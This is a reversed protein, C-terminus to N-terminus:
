FNYPAAKTDTLKFSTELVDQSNTGVFLKFDGAEYGWSYDLRCFALDQPKISLHVTKTEGKKLFIKQFGKLEKVPRTVSGVLDRVYLQVVEHGDYNGTNTVDVSVNLTQGDALTNKDIKLHSYKFTTYSLGYGFPFLPANTGDQYRTTFHDEPNYPRGTNKHNYFLPVQGAYRPFTTTLKGSPNYDGFLVDAIANGAESGLHWVDLIAPINEAEWTIVLPRCNHLLLVTPKNLKLVEKILKRQIAPIEINLRSAAEGGMDQREGMALLVVDSKKAAAIAEAFGQEDNKEFDCGKAMNITAKLHKNQLGKYITTVTEKRGATYWSGLQDLQDDALPGILAVSQVEKKLPLIHQDNKLLVISKDAVSRATKFHEPNQLVKKARKKSCYRYPDQFLGLRYKMNLIRRCADDIESEPVKGEKVSKLLSNKYIDSQMDMDVGANMAVEGAEKKDKVNGHKTMEYISTYDTVVFGKFGWEKKLVDSLLFKNGTCPVGNLDNFATMITAVGADVAAKFPPLYTDRLAREPVETTNYDRGAQVAGYAAFHKVCAAVTGVDSLEDGQFGEVQAKAIKAGLYPDEGAGEVVRGWRPDRAIDVMPAYTWNLGDAAAEKATIRAASKVAELDWSTSMALPTPFTTKYGHIADFGFMMPIGLRSHEVVAKQLRYIFDYTQANLFAGIKGDRADQVYDIGSVPGTVNWYSAVLVTQGIKEELTMKGMLDDVFKKMDQDNGWAKLNKNHATQEAM